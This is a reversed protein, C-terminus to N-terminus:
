EPEFARFTSIRNKADGEGLYLEDMITAVEEELAKSYDKAQVECADRATQEALTAQMAIPHASVANRHTYSSMLAGKTELIADALEEKHNEFYARIVDEASQIGQQAKFAKVKADVISNLRSNVRNLQTKNLM